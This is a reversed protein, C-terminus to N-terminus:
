ASPSVCRRIPRRRRPPTARRHIADPERRKDMRMRRRARGTPDATPDLPLDLMPHDLTPDLPLGRMPDCPLDRLPGVQLHRTLALPLGGTPDLPLDRVPGHSPTAAM